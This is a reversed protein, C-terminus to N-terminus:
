QSSATVSTLTQPALMAVCVQDLTACVRAVVPGRTNILYQPRSHTGAFQSKICWTAMLWESVLILKLESEIILQDWDTLVISRIFGLVVSQRSVFTLIELLTLLSTSLTQIFSEVEGWWFSHRSYCAASSTLCLRYSQLICVLFMEWNRPILGLWWPNLNYM